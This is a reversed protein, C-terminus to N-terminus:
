SLRNITKKYVYLTYTYRIYIVLVSFPCPDVYIYLTYIYGFFLLRFLSLFFLPTYLPVFLYLKYLYFKVYLYLKYTYLLFQIYFDYIFTTYTPRIRLFTYTSVNIYLNWNSEYTCLRGKTCLCLYLFPQVPLFLPKIILFTAAVAM